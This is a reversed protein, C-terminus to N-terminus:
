RGYDSALALMAARQPASYEDIGEEDGKRIAEVLAPTLASSLSWNWYRLVTQARDVAMMDYIILTRELAATMAGTSDAEPRRLARWLSLVASKPLGTAKCLVAIPEGYADTFIKAGTMPKIGSLYAIESAIDRTLRHEAAAIAAELSEYASRQIASRNRQRREVFQLAKRVLPDQWGEQSALPFVDGAAEQLVERSVAFRQLILRRADPEAWWFMVYAHSPRLEPRRLLPEMLNPYTRSLAVAREIGAPSIRAERNALLAIIVAPEEREILAESVVESLGRRRAIMRRHDPTAERACALLDPDSLITGDELLHAATEIDDKLLLRALVNPIESLHAMRRAARQRDDPSGDRLMEVLLDATVSREFANVRSSPLSVVDALRKVLARRARGIPSPRADDPGLTLLAEAM